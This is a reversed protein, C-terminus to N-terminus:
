CFWGPTVRGQLTREDNNMRKILLRTPDVPGPMGITGPQVQIFGVRGYYPADGVLLVGAAPFGSAAELGHELLMLGIGQGPFAPDVVLPGLLLAKHDGVQIPSFAISGVVEGNSLAM